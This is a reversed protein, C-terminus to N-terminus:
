EEYKEVYGEILKAVKTKSISLYQNISETTDPIQDPTLSNIIKDVAKKVIMKYADRMLLGEHWTPKLLEKVFEVLAARFHKMVGSEYNVSGDRRVESDIECSPRLKELKSEKRKQGRPNVARPQKEEKLSTNLNEQHAIASDTTKRENASLDKEATSTQETSDRIPDYLNEPPPIIQSLFTSPRFPASTEWDNFYVKTKYGCSHETAGSLDTWSFTETGYGPPASSKNHLSISRSYCHEQSRDLLKQDGIPDLNSSSTLYSPRRDMSCNFFPFHRYDLMLHTRKYSMDNLAPAYSSVETNQYKYSSLVSSSPLMGSCYSDRNLSDDKLLPPSSTGYGALYSKCGLTERGIDRFSMSSWGEVRHMHLDNGSNLRQNEGYQVESSALDSFCDPAPRETTDKSGEGNILKNKMKAADLVGNNNHSIVPDRIHLFRCLSGNICWGRSYFECRDAPRKNGGSSDATRSLSRAWTEQVGLRLSTQLLDQSVEQHGGETFEASVKQGFPQIEHTIIKGSDCKLAQLDSLVVTRKGALAGVPDGHIEEEIMPADPNAVPPKPTSIGLRIPKDLGMPELIRTGDGAMLFLESKLTSKGELDAKWPWSSHQGENSFFAYAGKVTFVKMGKDKWVLFDEEDNLASVGELIHIHSHKTHWGTCNISNLNGGEAYLVRKLRSARHFLLKCKVDNVLTKTCADDTGGGRKHDGDDDLPASGESNEEGDKIEEEVEIKEYEEDENLSIKHVPVSNTTLVDAAAVSSPM